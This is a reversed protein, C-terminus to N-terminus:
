EDVGGVSATSQYNFCSCAPGKAGSVKTLKMAVVPWDTGRGQMPVRTKHNTVM